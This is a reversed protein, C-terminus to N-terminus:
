RELQIQWSPLIDRYDGSVRINTVIWSSKGQYSTLEIFAVGKSYCITYWNVRVSPSPSTGGITEFRLMKGNLTELQTLQKQLADRTAQAKAQASGAFWIDLAAVSGASYYADLGNQVIGPTPAQASYVEAAHLQSSILFLGLLATLVLTAKM